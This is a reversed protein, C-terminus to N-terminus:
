TKPTKRKGQVSLDSGPSRSRNSADNLCFFEFLKSIESRDFGSFHVAFCLFM